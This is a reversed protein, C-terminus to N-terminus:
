PDERLALLSGGRIRITSGTGPAGSGSTVQVGALKGVILDAPSSIVGRNFDKNNVAYIAGTADKKEVTGYGIVVVETLQTVDAVLSINIITQDGVAIEQPTYGVFSIVLVAGKKAKITFDGDGNTLAGNTTGKELVNVGPIATGDSSDLIKGSVVVEQAKVSGAIFLALLTVVLLRYHKKM